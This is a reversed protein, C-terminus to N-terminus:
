FPFAAGEPRDADSLALAVGLPGKYLSDIRDPNGIQHAARETLVRARELWVNEGTERWLAVAAYARGAEGCCLSGNGAEAEWANWASREALRLYAPERYVRSARIWLHTQGPAGNCWSAMAAGGGSRSLRVPWVVGRGAPEALRA